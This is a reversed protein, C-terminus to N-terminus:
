HKISLDFLRVATMPRDVRMKKAYNLGKARNRADATAYRPAKGSNSPLVVKMGPSGIETCFFGDVIYSESDVAVGMGHVINIVGNVFTDNLGEAVIQSPTKKQNAAVNYQYWAAENVIYADEDGFWFGTPQLKLEVMNTESCDITINFDDDQSNEAPWYTTYPNVLRYVGPKDVNQQVPVNWTEPEGYENFWVIGDTLEAMGLDNWERKGQGGPFIIELTGSPFAYGDTFAYFHGDAFTIHDVYTTGGSEFTDLTGLGYGANPDDDSLAENLITGAARDFFSIDSYESSLTYYTNYVPKAKGVKDCLYVNNPDSANIYMINVRDGGNYRFDNGTSNAPANAYPTMVRYLGPSLPNRQIDVEFIFDVGTVTFGSILCQDKFVGATEGKPGIVPEWPVYIASCQATSSFYESSTGDVAFDFIFEKGANANMTPWDYSVRIAVSDEGAEFTVPITAEGGGNVPTLDVSPATEGEPVDKQFHFFDANVACQVDVTEQSASSARYVPVTFSTQNEDIVVDGDYDLAFYAPPTAVPSAAEYYQDAAKDCASFMVALAGLGVTFKNLKM